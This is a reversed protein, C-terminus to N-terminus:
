RAGAWKASFIKASMDCAGVHATRREPRGGAAAREPQQSPRRPQTALRLLTHM